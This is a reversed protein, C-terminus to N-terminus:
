CGLWADRRKRVADAVDAVLRLSATDKPPAELIVSLDLLEDRRFVALRIQDGPQYDALRSDLNRETLKLGDLALLQDGPAIGAQEGCGGAMVVAVVLPSNRAMQIGLTVPPPEGEASVGGKDSEGRRARLELLVGFETLLSVLDPDGTQRVNRNFFDELDLGSLEAVLAEFGAEPLGVGTLGHRQWLARMIDDLSVHGSSRLRLTLDLALAVMAGKSYYSIAGNPSNETPKYLKDWAEFSADALSQHHRGPVRYVRTLIEALRDLYASTSLVQSRLLFLDQYYTTVGEFVWLLRTYNRQFYRYPSFAAPKIRKVHWTHFYEHSILGLLRQYPKSMGNAGPRPLDGRSFILSCSARHELGGYGEGVAMGLFAYRSMPAPSGFFAIQTECVQRVDAALRELDGDQCGTLVFSHPVGAASFQFRVFDSIEVPHDVLEDYDASRYSGFGREDLNVPTMATAVCWRGAVDGPPPEVVVDFPGDRKEFLPFVCPGNFFARHTDLYAGRVSLDFAFIRLKVTLPGARNACQWRSKDLKTVPVEASSSHAAVGVVHRAYERLLYSGPSWSPLGFIQNNDAVLECVVEFLHARPEAPTVRYRIAATTTM